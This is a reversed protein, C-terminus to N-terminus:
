GARMHRATSCPRTKLRLIHGMSHDETMFGATQLERMLTAADPEREIFFSAPHHPLVPANTILLVGDPRLARRILSFLRTRSKVYSLVSNLMVTDFSNKAFPWNKESHEDLPPITKKRRASKNKELACSSIDTAMDVRIYSNSGAGLDLIRGHANEALWGGVDLRSAQFEDFHDWFKSTSSAPRLHHKRSFGRWFVDAPKGGYLLHLFKVLTDDPMRIKLVPSDLSGSEIAENQAVIYTQVLEWLRTLYEARATDGQMLYSYVADEVTRELAARSIRTYFDVPQKKGEFIGHWFFCLDAAFRGRSATIRRYAARNPM